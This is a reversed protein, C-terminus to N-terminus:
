RAVPKKFGELFTEKNIGIDLFDWPLLEDHSKEELYVSPEIQNESFAKMWLDFSFYNGWADFRAGARFAYLIM